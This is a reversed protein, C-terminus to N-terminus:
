KTINYKLEIKYKYKYFHPHPPNKFYDGHPLGRKTKSQKYHMICYSNRKRSRSCQHGYYWKKKIPNYRVHNKVGWCRATCKDNLNINKKIRKKYKNRKIRQKNKFLINPYYRKKLFDISINKNLISLAIFLNDLDNKIVSTINNDM